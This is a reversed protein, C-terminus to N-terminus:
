RYAQSAVWVGQHLAGDGFTHRVHPADLGVGAIMGHAGVHLRRMDEEFRRAKAALTSGFADARWSEELTSIADAVTDVLLVTRPGHARYFDRGTRDIPVWHM